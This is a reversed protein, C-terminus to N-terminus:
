QIAVDPQTTWSPDNTVGFKIPNGVSCAITFNYSNGKVLETDVPITKTETGLKTGNKYLDVTFTVNFTAANPVLLLEANSKAGTTSTVNAIEAFDVNKATGGAWTGGNITYTGTEFNSVKIDTVTHYYGGM